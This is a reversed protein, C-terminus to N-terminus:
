ASRCTKKLCAGGQTEDSRVFSIYHEFGKRFLSNKVRLRYYLM